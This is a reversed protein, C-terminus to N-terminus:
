VFANVYRDKFYALNFTSRNDQITFSLIDFM